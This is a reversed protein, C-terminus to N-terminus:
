PGIWQQKLGFWILKYAWMGNVVNFVHVFKIKKKKKKPPTNKKFIHKSFLQKCVEQIVNSIGWYLPAVHDCLM